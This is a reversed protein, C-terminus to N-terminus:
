DCAQQSFHNKKKTQKCLTTHQPLTCVRTHSKLCTSCTQCTQLSDWENGVSFPCEKGAWTQHFWLGTPCSLLNAKDNFFPGEWESFLWISMSVSHAAPIRMQGRGGLPTEQFIWFSHHCFKSLMCDRKPWCCVCLIIHDWLIIMGM